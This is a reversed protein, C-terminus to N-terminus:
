YREHSEEEGVSSVRARREEKREFDCVVVQGGERRRMNRRPPIMRWCSGSSSSLFLGLPRVAGAPEKKPRPCV